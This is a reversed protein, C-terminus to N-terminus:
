CLVQGRSKKSVKTTSTSNAHRKRIPEEDQTCEATRPEGNRRGSDGGEVPEAEAACVTDTTEKDVSPRSELKSQSGAKETSRSLYPLISRSASIRGTVNLAAGNHSLRVLLRATNRADDLGCHQRGQWKLDMYEVARGLPLTRRTANMFIKKLNIWQNYYAPKEIERWLCETQLQKELDWDTWTVPVFSKGKALVGLERLWEDHMELVDKLSSAGDVQDQAIGTLQTCFPTLRPKVTPKAYRQFGEQWIDLTSADVVVCSFEIIEQPSFGRIDDCTAEFDYVVYYDFRRKSRM